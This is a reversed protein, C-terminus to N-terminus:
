NRSTRSSCRPMSLVLNQLSATANLMGALGKRVEEASPSQLHFVPFLAGAPPETDLARLATLYSVRAAQAPREAWPVEDRFYCPRTIGSAGHVRPSLGSSSGPTERRSDPAVM